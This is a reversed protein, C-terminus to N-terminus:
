VKKEKLILNINKLFKGANVLSEEAPGLNAQPLKRYTFRGRKSKEVKFIGLLEEAKVAMDEYIRLLEINIEGSDALRKFQMLTKRHESPPNTMIGNSLLFSKASYFICYYCTSIVNSYFTSEEKLEFELRLNKDSSLRFIANALDFESKARDLYLAPKSGSDMIM